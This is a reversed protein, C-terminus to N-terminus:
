LSDRGMSGRWAAVSNDIVFMVAPAKILIRLGEAVVCLLKVM